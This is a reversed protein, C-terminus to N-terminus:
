NKKSNKWAEVAQSYVQSALPEVKAQSLADGYSELFRTYRYDLDGSKKFASVTDEYLVRSEKVKGQKLLVRAIDGKIALTDADTMGLSREKLTLAQRYHELALGFNGEREFKFALDSIRNSEELSERKEKFAIATQGLIKAYRASHFDIVADDYLNQVFEQKTPLSLVPSDTIKEAIRIADAKRSFVIHALRKRLAADTQPSLAPNTELCILCDKLLSELEIPDTTDATKKLLKVLEISRSLSEIKGSNKTPDFKRLYLLKEYMALASEFKGFKTFSEAYKIMMSQVLLETGALAVMDMKGPPANDLSEKTLRAATTRSLPNYDFTFHIDIPLSASHPHNISFPAADEVAKIAAKDVSLVGSTKDIKLDTVTGDKAIKFTVVTQRSDSDRPPFWNRKIRRQIDAMVPSFDLKNSQSNKSSEDREKKQSTSADDQDGINFQSKAMAKAFHAYLGLNAKELHRITQILHKRAEEDGTKLKLAEAYEVFTGIFDSRKRAESALKMHDNYSENEKGITQLTTKISQVVAWNKENLVYARYFYSLAKTPNSKLVSKGFNSYAIALNESALSYKIDKELAKEFFEIALPFNEQNLAKVGDNNLAIVENQIQNSLASQSVLFAIALSVAIPLLKLNTRSSHPM